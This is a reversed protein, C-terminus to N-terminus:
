SSPGARVEPIKFSATNFSLDVENNVRCSTAFLYDHKHLLPASLFSSHVQSGRNFDQKVEFYSKGDDDMGSSLQESIEYVDIQYVLDSEEIPSTNGSQHVSLDTLNQENKGATFLHNKVNQVPVESYYTIILQENQDSIVKINEAGLLELQATILSKTKDNQYDNSSDFSVVIEQNPAEIGHREVVFLSVLAILASIYWKIKM